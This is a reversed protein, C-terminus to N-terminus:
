GYRCPGSKSKSFNCWKCKSNPRPAFVTDTFMPVVAKEWKAKLKDRDAAKHESILEDGSDLYALRTTVTPAMPYRVMASLAFLEVQEKNEEYLKGTKWDIVEVAHDEYIVGADVVSRLWPQKGSGDRKGFWPAERWDRDFAWQQEVLLKPFQALEYVLKAFKAAEVPFSSTPQKLFDEVSKHVARGRAMAPGPPDPLKDIKAYKYKAPCQTYLEWASFSWATVANM